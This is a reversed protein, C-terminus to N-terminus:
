NLITTGTLKSKVPFGEPFLSTEISFGHSFVEGGLNWESKLPLYNCEKQNINLVAIDYNEDKIVIKSLIWWSLPVGIDYM